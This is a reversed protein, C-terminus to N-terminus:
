GHPEWINRKLTGMMLFVFLTGLDIDLERNIIKINNSIIMKQRLKKTPLITMKMKRM